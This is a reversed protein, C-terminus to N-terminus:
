LKELESTANCLGMAEIGQGLSFSTKGPYIVLKRSPKLETCGNHFGKTVTPSSARKIEIAWFDKNGLGLLLDIEAGASTRYFYAPVGVPAAALLHELVFGEWSPGAIPHGLLQEASELGLLAHLIGSDRLYIKPRRILRKSSNGSWPPLRRVLLLDVLLDLYRAVTHGSVGTSQGLLAQNLVSGQLNALMTWFRRLTEAPIRPGLAPVDRELYTRIFATRWRLSQSDNKALFSDPFGGRVWLTDTSLGLQTIEQALLPTLEISALRGALSESSQNLLDLSAPGLLLFFAGSKRKRKRSDIVSRLVPFLNPTRQIEDLVLLDDQHRSFYDEPDTLKNLDSPLELDLYSAKPNNQILTLALTTKGVQRPGLLAVAPFQALLQTLKSQAIRSIM